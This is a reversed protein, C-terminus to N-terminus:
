ASKAADSAEDAAARKRRRLERVGAAGMSILGLGMFIAASAPEPIIGTDGARIHEGMTNDYAWDVITLKPHLHNVRIWGFYGSALKIGLIGQTFGYGPSFTNSISLGIAKAAIPGLSTDLTGVRVGSDFTKLIFPASLTSLVALKNSLNDGVISFATAYPKPAQAFQFNNKGDGDIDIETSEGKELSISINQVGSYVIAADLESGTLLTASTAAGFAVCTKKLNRMGGNRPADTQTASYNALEDEFDLNSTDNIKRKMGARGTVTRIIFSIEQFKKKDFRGACASGANLFVLGASM